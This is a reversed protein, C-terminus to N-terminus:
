RVPLQLFIDVNKRNLHLMIARAKTKRAAEIIEEVQAPTSVSRQNISLILDGARIGQKAAVSKRVVSAVLVGKLDNKIGLSLRQEDDLNKLEMGTMSIMKENNTSLKKEKQPFETLKVKAATKKGNRMLAVEVTKNLPISAVIRPLKRFNTIEKGDFDLIIDEVKIGAKDAPSGKLVSVVLAGSDEKMGLAQAMDATGQVSVGLWGRKVSGYKIIQEVIHEAFSSPVAFGIGISGGTLSAIATNIGIVEGKNNFMPGGSNGRNIPADTQIFNDVISDTDIDRAHASIVGSTVSGGLGFPNGIAIVIDGVRATDSDGFKVFPLDKNTKIKLVAIDSRIDSGVVEAAYKEDDHLNVMIKDADAVVHYNTVIYGSKDIIFGSGGAVAKFEEPKEGNKFGGYPMVGFKEFLDNFEESDFPFARPINPIDYGDEAIKQTTSINVVAPLLPKVLDAYGSCPCSNAFAANSCFSLILLFIITIKKM